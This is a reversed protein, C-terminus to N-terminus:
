GTKNSCTETFRILKDKDIIYYYREVKKILKLKLLNKVANVITVRTTGVLDALEQQTFTISIKITGNSSMEGYTEALHIFAYAVRVHASKFSLQLSSHTLLELKMSLIELWQRTLNPDSLSISEFIKKDVKLLKTNSVAVASTSNTTHTSLFYEGFLGNEGIIKVTKEKGDSTLLYLRVRGSLVIYVYHLPSGSHYIHENKKLLVEEGHENFDSWRFPLKELWPSLHQYDFSM